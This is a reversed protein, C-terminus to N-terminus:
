AFCRSMGVEITNVGPSEVSEFPCYGLPEDASRTFGCERRTIRGSSSFNSQDDLIVNLAYFVLIELFSSGM